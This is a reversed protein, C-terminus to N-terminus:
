FELRVDFGYLGDLEELAGFRSDLQNLDNFPASTMFSLPNFGPSLMAELEFASSGAICTMPSGPSDDASMLNSSNGDDSDLFLGFDDLINESQVALGHSSFSADRQKSSFSSDKLSGCRPSKTRQRKSGVNTVTIISPEVANELEFTSVLAQASRKRSSTVLKETTKTTASTMLTTPETADEFLSLLNSPNISSSISAKESDYCSQLGHEHIESLSSVKSLSPGGNSTLPSTSQSRSEDPTLSHLSVDLKGDITSSCSTNMKAQHGGQEQRSHWVSHSTLSSRWKFKKLCDPRPCCFPQEGTHVRKHATLNYKKSFGKPCDPFPCMHLLQIHGEQALTAPVRSSM